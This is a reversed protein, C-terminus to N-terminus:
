FRRMCILSLWGCPKLGCCFFLKFLALVMTFLLALLRGPFLLLKQCPPLM